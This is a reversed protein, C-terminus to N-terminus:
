TCAQLIQNLIALLAAWIAGFHGNMTMEKSRFEGGWAGVGTIM